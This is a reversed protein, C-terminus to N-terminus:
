RDRVSCRSTGRFLDGLDPLNRVEVGGDGPALAAPAEWAGPVEAEADAEASPQGTEPDELDEPGGPTELGGADGVLGDAM